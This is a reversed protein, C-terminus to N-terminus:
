GDGHPFTETMVSEYWELRKRSVRGACIPCGSKQPGSRSYVVAQWVHGVDCIWWVLKHSGPLVMQPTLEGNRTPHWQRALEPYLTKLDSQGALPIKGACVPCGTGSGTRTHVAAQWRHGKQCRWWVKRKSGHSIQEPTEPLNAPADWEQLLEQWQEQICYDYLSQRM